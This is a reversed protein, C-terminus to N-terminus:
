RTDSRTLAYAVVIATGVFALAGVWLWTRPEGEDAGDGVDDPTEAEEIPESESVVPSAFAEGDVSLETEGPEEPTWALRVSREEGGPVTVQAEDVPDGDAALQVTRTGELPGRNELTVSVEAEVGVVLGEDLLERDTIEIQAAPAPALAFTSFGSTQTRFRNVSPGDELVETSAPSWEEGSHRYLVLEEADLGRDELRDGPVEYVFEAQVVADDPPHDDVQFVGVPEGPSPQMWAPGESPIERNHDLRLEVDELDEAATFTLRDVRVPVETAPAPVAAELVADAPVRDARIAFAADALAEVDAERREAAEPPPGGGGGGGGPAEDEDGEDTDDEGEQDDDEGEDDEPPAEDDAPEDTEPAPGGIAFVSFGPSTAEFLHGEASRGEHTTELEEWGTGNNHHLVVEAPTLNQEDLRGPDVHFSFTAEGITDGGEKTDVDVYSTPSREDALEPEEVEDPTETTQRVTFALEDAPEATTVNVYAVGAGAEQGTRPIQAAVTEGAPVDEAEVTVTGEDSVTIGACLPGDGLEDVSLNLQRVQGSSWTVPEEPTAESWDVLFTIPEGEDSGNGQVVLKEAFGGPGGYAGESGTNLCGRQEGDVLAVVAVGSPAPEGDAELDGYFAPPAPPPGDAQAGLGVLPAALLLLAAVLCRSPNASGM